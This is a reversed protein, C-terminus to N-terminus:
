LLTTKGTARDLLRALERAQAITLKVPMTSAALPAKSILQLGVFRQQDTDSGLAHVRLVSSHFSSEQLTIEGLTNAIPAGFMAASFSRYRIWRYVLPVVVLALIAFFVIPFLDEM